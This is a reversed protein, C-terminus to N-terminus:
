PREAHRRHRARDDRTDGIGHLLYIVPYRAASTDYGPPLYVAVQQAPPDGTKNGALAKSDINLIRVEAAAPFATYLLAVLFIARRM